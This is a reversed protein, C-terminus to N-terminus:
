LDELLFHTQVMHQTPFKYFILLMRSDVPFDRVDTLDGKYFIYNHLIIKPIFTKMIKEHKLIQKRM